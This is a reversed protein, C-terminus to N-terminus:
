AKLITLFTLSFHCQFLLINSRILNKHGGLREVMATCDCLGNYVVIPINSPHTTEDTNIGTPLVFKIGSYDGDSDGDGDENIRERTVKALSPSIMMSTGIARRLPSTFVSVKEVKASALASLISEFATSAQRRGEKTLTPDIKDERTRKRYLVKSSSSSTEAAEDEREGHRVVFVLIRKSMVLSSTTFMFIPSTDPLNISSTHTDTTADEYRRLFIQRIM